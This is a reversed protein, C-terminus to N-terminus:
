QIEVSALNLKQISGGDMYWFTMPPSQRAGRTIASAPLIQLYWGQAFLVSSIDVGPGAASNVQAAQLTSLPVGPRFAGFNLGAEIPDACAARVLAYGANNYPVSKAQTLLTMMAQQFANNLWIQNVYSDAWQFPGSVLGPYFFTFQDNATAYAGYFNYGNAILNEASTQDTISAAMGTQSKFALTIRGNLGEFYISAVAGCVFAALSYDPAYIPIIGSSNAVKLINGLSTPADASLTPTVDSDWVVYAYRNGAANCWAAFAQKLTNGSGGDPDFLTMFTAWNTTLDVVDGMFTGPVSTAAGQSTVAGTAATLMLATALTGTAFGATSPTGAIGSSVLFAGGVSNYSVDVPTATGQIAQAVAISSSQSLNYTGTGGTGTGLSTIVSNATVGAGAVTQGVAFAGTVTGGVTLVAGAITSATSTAAVVTTTNLASEILAAASSFSTAAALSFSAATRLYGDVTVILTGTLAQLETLTMASVDGGRLYAAVPALPYQAFLVAGPKVSSNDFGNFYIAAAAAEDSSAGFYDSVAEASPFSLVSGVPVQTSASLILGNMDLASGGAGIVGPIVTVIASAPITPNM